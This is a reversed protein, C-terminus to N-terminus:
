PLSCRALSPSCKLCLICRDSGSHLLLGPEVATHDRAFAARRHGQAREQLLCPRMALAARPVSRQSVLQGHERVRPRHRRTRRVQLVLSSLHAVPCRPGQAHVPKKGHLSAPSHGLTHHGCFLLALWWGALPPSSYPVAGFAQRELGRPTRFSSVEQMWRHVCVARISRRFSCNEHTTTLTLSLPSEGSFRPAIKLLTDLHKDAISFSARTCPAARDPVSASASM